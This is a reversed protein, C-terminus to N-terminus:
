GDSCHWTASETRAASSISQHHTQSGEVEGKAQCVQDADHAAGEKGKCITSAGQLSLLLRSFPFTQVLAPRPVHHHHHHHHHRREVFISWPQEGAGRCTHQM